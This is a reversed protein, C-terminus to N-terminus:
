CLALQSRNVFNLYVVFHDSYDNKAAVVLNTDTAVDSTGFCDVIEGVEDNLTVSANVPEFTGKVKVQQQQEMTLLKAALVMWDLGLDCADDAVLGDNEKSNIQHHLEM